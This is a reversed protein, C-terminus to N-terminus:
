HSKLRHPFPELYYSQGGLANMHFESFRYKDIICLLNVQCDFINLNVRVFAEQNRSELISIYCVQVNSVHCQHLFNYTSYHCFRKRNPISM